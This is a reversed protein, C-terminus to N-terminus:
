SVRMGESVTYFWERCVNREWTVSAQDSKVLSAPVQVKGLWSPFGGSLLAAWAGLWEQLQQSLLTGNFVSRMYTCMM